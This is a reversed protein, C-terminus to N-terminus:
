GPAEGPQVVGCEYALVAAQTRDRLSLKTLIRNVHTKITAESLFLEAAIEANSLGRAVQGLVELERDTLRALRDPKGAAARPRQVFSEILRRTISPALLADGAAVTRVAAALQEPPANKLMFGSAGARMADYVYEDLDFTTLMLVRPPDKGDLLARTAEIGDLDPMRVDMLVLDPKRLRAQEIAERGDAAEGVVAIDPESDLMMRFAGRVLAQDDALLVRIV